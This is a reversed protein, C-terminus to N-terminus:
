FGDAELREGKGRGGVRLLRADAIQGLLQVSVALALLGLM